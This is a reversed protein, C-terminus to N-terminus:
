RWGAKFCNFSCRPGTRARSRRSSCISGTPLPEQRLDLRPPAVGVLIEAEPDRAETRSRAGGQHEPPRSTRCSRRSNTSSGKPSPRASPRAVSQFPASRRCHAPPEVDRDPRYCSPPPLPQHRPPEDNVPPGLDAEELRAERTEHIRVARLDIAAHPETLQGVGLAVLDDPPRPPHCHHFLGAQDLDRPPNRPLQPARRLGDPRRELLVIAHMGIARNERQRRAGQVVLGLSLDIPEVAPPDRDLHQGALEAPGPRADVAHDVLNPRQPDQADLQFVHGM